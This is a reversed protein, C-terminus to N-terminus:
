PNIINLTIIILFYYKGLLEFRNGIKDIHQDHGPLFYSKLSFRARGEQVCLLQVFSLKPDAALRIYRMRDRDGLNDGSKLKIGVAYAGRQEM